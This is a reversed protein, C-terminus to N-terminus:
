LAWRSRSADHIAPVQVAATTAVLRRRALGERLAPPSDGPIESSLVAVREPGGGGGAPERSVGRRAREEGSWGAQTPEEGVRGPRPAWLLRSRAPSGVAPLLPTFAARKGRTFARSSRSKVELARHLGLRHGVQGQDLEQGLVLADGEQARGAGALGIQGDRPIQGPV